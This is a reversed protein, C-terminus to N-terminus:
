KWYRSNLYRLMRQITESDCSSFFEVIWGLVRLEQSISKTTKM